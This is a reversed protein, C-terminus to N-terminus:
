QRCALPNPDFSTGNPLENAVGGVYYNLPLDCIGKKTFGKQTLYDEVQQKALNFDPVLIEAELDDPGSVYEVRVNANQFIAGEIDGTPIGMTKRLQDVIQNKAKLDLESLPVRNTFREYALKSDEPSIVIHSETVASETPAPTSESTSLVPNEVAPVSPKTVEASPLVITEMPSSPLPMNSIEVIPQPFKIDTLNQSNENGASVSAGAVTAGAAIVAALLASKVKPVVRRKNEQMSESLNVNTNLPERNVPQPIEKGLNDDM